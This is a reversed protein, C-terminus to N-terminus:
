YKSGRYYEEAEEVSLWDFLEKMEAIVARIQYYDYDLNELASLIYGLCAATTWPESCRKKM